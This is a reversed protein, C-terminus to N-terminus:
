VQVGLAAARRSCEDLIPQDSQWFLCCKDPQVRIGYRKAVKVYTEFQDLMLQWSGVTVLDDLYANFTEAMEQTKKESKEKVTEYMGQATLAFGLPAYPDGQAFSQAYLVKTEGNVM